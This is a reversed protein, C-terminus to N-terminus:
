PLLLAQWAAALWADLTSFDVVYLMALALAVVALALWDRPRARLRYLRTRGRGGMYGRADMALALTEARRLSTVFLPVVLPLMQRATRLFRWGGSRDFDAGRSAQAKALRTMELALTPVFRLAITFVLALEHAPLRLWELPTLLREVGHSLQTTTTTLTLASTLPVLTWLRILSLTMLRLGCVTIRLPGVTLLAQCERGGPPLLLQFVAFLAMVPLLPRVGRLAYRLPLRALALLGLIGALAVVNATLSNNLSIGVILAGFAVLKFRPDLRHILSGTPLYQGITVDRLFEFQSM